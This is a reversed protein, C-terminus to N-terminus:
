CERGTGAIPSTAFPTYLDATAGVTASPGSASGWWNCIAAGVPLSSGTASGTVQISVVYGVFDNKQVNAYRVPPTLSHFLHIGTHVNEIRNNEAILSQVINPNIGAGANRVVNDRFVTSTGNLAELAGDSMPYSDRDNPNAVTGIGEVLNREAIVDEGDAMLGVVVGRGFQAQFVELRPSTRIVNDAIRVTGASIVRICGRWGCEVFRNRLIEGDSGSQFQLSSLGTQAEFYSDLVDVRPAGSVLLGSGSGGLFDVDRVIVHSSQITSALFAAGSAVFTASELLVDAYSGQARVETPASSKTFTLGRIVVTGNPHAPFLGGTVTAAAGPEPEITLAKGISLGSVTHTGACLRVVGGTAVASIADAITAYTPASGGPAGCVRVATPGTVTLTASSSVEDVSASVQTVGVALGSVLGETTVTAVQPDSTSWTPTRGSTPFGARDIMAAHMQLQHGVAVTPAEPTLAISAVPRCGADPPPGAAEGPNEPPQPKCAIQSASPTAPMTPAVDSCAATLLAIAGLRYWRM